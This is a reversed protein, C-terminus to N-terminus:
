QGLAVADVNAVRQLLSVSQWTLVVCDTPMDILQARGDSANAYDTSRLNRLFEFGM